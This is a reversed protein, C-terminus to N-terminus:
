RVLKKVSRSSSSEVGAANVATMAFYWWGRPLYEVVYSTLGPNNLVVSQNMSKAKRGYYIRYGALNTLISGDANETPPAWFLTAAGEGVQDVVIDFAPLAVTSHRDSVSITINSYPGLESVDPTGALRGTTRDFTAWPPMRLITFELRDGDSDAATPIFEYAEDPLVTTPPAGSITPPRNNSRGNGGGQGGGGSCASFIWAVGIIVSLLERQM